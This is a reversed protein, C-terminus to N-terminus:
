PRTWPRIRPDSSATDSAATSDALFADYLVEEVLRHIWTRIQPSQPDPRQVVELNGYEPKAIVGCGGVIAEVAVSTRRAEVTPLVAVRSGFATFIGLTSRASSWRQRIAVVGDVKVPSSRTLFDPDGHAVCKLLLPDAAPFIKDALRNAREAEDVAGVVTLQTGLVTVDVARGSWGLLECAESITRSM